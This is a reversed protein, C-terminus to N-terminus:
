NEAEAGAAKLMARIDQNMAFYYPTKERKDMVNVDIDPHELLLKTIDIHANRCAYHLPSWNSFAFLFYFHFIIFNYYFSNIFYLFSVGDVDQLNVKIIKNKLLAEAVPIHNFRTAAHLPTNGDVEALNVDIDDKELLLKVIEIDGSKSALYLPTEKYSFFLIIWAFAM